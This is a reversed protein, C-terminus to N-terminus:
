PSGGLKIKKRSVTRFNGDGERLELFSDMPVNTFRRTQRTAPWTVELLAIKSAYCTNMNQSSGLIVHIVYIVHIM